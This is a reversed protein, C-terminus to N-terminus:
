PWRRKLKRRITRPKWKRWDGGVIIEAQRRTRGRMIWDYMIGGQIELRDREVKLDDLEAAKREGYTQFKLLEDQLRCCEAGFDLMIPNQRDFPLRQEAEM